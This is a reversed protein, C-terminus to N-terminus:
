SKKKTKSPVLGIRMKFAEISMVLNSLHDNLQIELAKYLFLDSKTYYQNYIRKLEDQYHAMQMRSPQMMSKYDFDAKVIAQKGLLFYYNGLYACSEYNHDDAVAVQEYLKAADGTRNQDIFSQAVTLLSDVNQASTSTFFVSMFCIFILLKRM